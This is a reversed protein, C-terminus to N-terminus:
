VDVLYGELFCSVPTAAASSAATLQIHTGAVFPPVSFVEPDMVFARLDFEALVYWLIGDASYSLYIIGDKTGQSAISAVFHTLVLKKANPVVYYGARSLNDGARITGMRVAPVGATVTGTGVWIRGANVNNAGTTLVQHSLYASFTAVTNVGTTGAMTVDETQLDGSADLGTVRVTLAGAGAVNDATNDTSSVTLVAPTAAIVSQNFQYGAGGFGDSLGFPGGNPVTDDHGAITAMTVGPVNGLRVELNYDKTGLYTM